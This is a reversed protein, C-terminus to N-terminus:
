VHHFIRAIFSCGFRFFTKIAHAQAQMLAVDSKTQAAINIASGRQRSVMSMFGIAVSIMLSIMVIVMILASATSSHKM